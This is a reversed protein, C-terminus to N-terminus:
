AAASKKLAQKKRRAAALSRSKAKRQQPSMAAWKAKIKQSLKERWHPDKLDRADTGRLDKAEKRIPVPSNKKPVSMPASVQKVPEVHNKAPAASGVMGADERMQRLQEQLAAIALEIGPIAALLGLRELDSSAKPM